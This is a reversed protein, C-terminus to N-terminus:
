LSYSRQWLEGRRISSSVSQWLISVITVISIIIIIFPARFCVDLAEKPSNININRACYIIWLYCFYAQWIHIRSHSPPLMRRIPIIVHCIWFWRWFMSSSDQTNMCLCHSMYLFHSKVLVVAPTYKFADENLAFTRMWLCGVLRQM